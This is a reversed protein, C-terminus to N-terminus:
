NTADDIADKTKEAGEKAAKETEKAAKDLDRGLGEMPGEDKKCGVFGILTVSVACVFLMRLLTKM